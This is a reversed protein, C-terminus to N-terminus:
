KKGFFYGILLTIGSDFVALLIKYDRMLELPKKSFLPELVFFGTVILLYFSSLGVALHFYFKEDDEKAKQLKYEEKEKKTMRDEPKDIKRVPVVPNSIMVGLMLLITPVTLSTLWGLVEAAKAGYKGYGLQFIFLLFPVVFGIGWVLLLYRRYAGLKM